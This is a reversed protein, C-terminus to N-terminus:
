GFFYSLNSQRERLFENTQLSTFPHMRVPFAPFTSFAPFAFHSDVHSTLPSQHSRIRFVAFPDGTAGDETVAVTRSGVAGTDGFRRQYRGVTGNHGKNHWPSLIPWRLFQSVRGFVATAM